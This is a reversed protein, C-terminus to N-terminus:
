FCLRREEEEGTRETLATTMVMNLKMTVTTAAKAQVYRPLWYTKASVAATLSGTAESGVQPVSQALWALAASAGGPAPLLELCM